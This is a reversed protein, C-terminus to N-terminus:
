QFIRSFDIFVTLFFHIIESEQWLVPIIIFVEGTLDHSLFLFCKKLPYLLFLSNKVFPKVLFSEGSYSRSFVKRWFSHWLYIIHLFNKGLSGKLLNGGAYTCFSVGEQHLTLFFKGLTFNHSSKELFTLNSVEGYFIHLFFGEELCPTLLFKGV